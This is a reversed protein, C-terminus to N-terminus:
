KKMFMKTYVEDNRIIRLLYLGNKFKSLNLEHLKDDLFSIEANDSIVAGYSDYISYFVQEGLPNLVEINLKDQAPNPFLNIRLPSKTNTGLDPCVLALDRDNCYGPYCCMAKVSYTAKPDYNCALVDMCGLVFLNKCSDLADCDRDNKYEIYDKNPCGCITEFPFKLHRSLIEGPLLVQDDAVYKSISGDTNFIELNIEFTINGKTTLQAILIHYNNNSDALIGSNQLGANNSKFENGAILSGFISSDKGSLPDLVGYEAWNSPSNTMVYQGDSTTIPIGAAPDTNRLLGGAIGASGGDNNVGGIFSGDKDHAKFIGAHTKSVMGLTLWSDLATTNEKFNNKSFDKGFTKGRDLNNFFVADSSIKLLHNEDGYIKTLKSGPELQAFIRYTKTGPLLKGGVEDTSDNFDSVYYTEVILKKLQAKAYSNLIFFSLLILIKKM